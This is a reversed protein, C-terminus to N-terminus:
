VNELHRKIRAKREKNIYYKAEYLSKFYNGYIEGNIDRVMFNRIVKSKGGFVAVQEWTEITSNNYIIVDVNNDIEKDEAWGRQILKKM